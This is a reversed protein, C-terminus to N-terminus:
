KSQCSTEMSANLAQIFSKIANWQPKTVSVLLQNLKDMNYNHMLSHIDMKLHCKHTKTKVASVVLLKPQIYIFISGNQPNIKRRANLTTRILNLDMKHHCYNTHKKDPANVDM